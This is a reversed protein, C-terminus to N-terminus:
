GFFVRQHWRNVLAEKRKELAEKRKEISERKEANVAKKADLKLKASLIDLNAQEVKLEAREIEKQAKQLEKQAKKINDEPSRNSNAYELNDMLEDIQNVLSKSAQNYDLSLSMTKSTLKCNFSDSERSWKYINGNVTLGNEGLENVLFTKLKSYRSKNSWRATFRLKNDSKSTSTSSNTNKPATPIPPGPPTTPQASISLTFISILLFQFLTKM